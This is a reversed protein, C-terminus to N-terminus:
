LLESLVRWSEDDPLADESVERKRAVSGEWGAKHKRWEEAEAETGVAWLTGWGSVDIRWYTM